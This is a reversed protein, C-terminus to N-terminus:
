NIAFSIWGGATSLWNDGGGTSGGPVFAGVYPASEFFGPEVLSCDPANDAIGGGVPFYRDDVVTPYSATIGTLPNTGAVGEAPTLGTNAVWLGYAQAASCPSAGSGIAYDTGGPGSNYMISDQVRLAPETAKLTTSNTCANAMTEDNDLDLAADPWDMIISNAIKGATGRRLNAGSGTSGCGQQVCGVVTMNCFDPNSRPLNNFGNENNDAEFGNRGGGSAISGNQYALGFQTAGTYGIQWDFLDDRCGSAVLYKSRVTGGFWEICDDFGVNAQVHDITTGRGVGNMTFVNLENDTSFEVGSFEIRTFRVQGSSDNPQSGGFNASGPPLGEAAGEGGPFNTPAAGLLSLGGWDGVGRAGPAQDSTMVIPSGATGAANIKSGRLVVLASPTGNTSSKRGKVRAGASVTVVAGNGVLVTGDVFTDCGGPWVQNATITGSVNTGCAITTGFGTCPTLLTDIGVAVQLSAVLDQSNIVNDDVLDGCDLTGLGGCHSGIPTGGGLVVTAIGVSDISDVVTNNNIDGCVAALTPAGTGLLLAGLLATTTWHTRMM